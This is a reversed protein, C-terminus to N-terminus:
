APRALEDATTLDCLDAFVTGAVWGEGDTAAPASSRLDTFVRDAAARSAQARAALVPVIATGVERTASEAADAVARDLRRGIRVAFAVLFSRRFRTTRSRGAEDYRAGERQLAATAQVLLSTYLEEVGELDDPFGFVTSFGLGKSWVARCSNADAVVTLLLAKADAYPDDVPLRRGQPEDDRGRGGARVGSAALLSRDIRHRAMLAQAKATFSEAEAAFTTSEAQALLARVKRLLGDPLDHRDPAPGPRWASPPEELRPLPGLRDLLDAVRVAARLSDRRPGPLQALYPRQPDWRRV